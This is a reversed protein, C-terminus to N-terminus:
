IFAVSAMKIVQLIDNNLEVIVDYHNPIDDEDIWSRVDRKITLIADLMADDISTYVCSPLVRNCGGEATPYCNITTKFVKKAM